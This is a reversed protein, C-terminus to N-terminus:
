LDVRTTAPEEGSSLSAWLWRLIIIILFSFLFIHLVVGSTLSAHPHRPPPLQWYKCNSFNQLTYVFCIKCSIKIKICNVYYKLASSFCINLKRVFNSKNRCKFTKMITFTPLERRRSMRVHGRCGAHNKM